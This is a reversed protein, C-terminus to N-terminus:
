LSLPPKSAPGIAMYVGDREDILGDRLLRQLAPNFIAGVVNMSRQIVRKACPQKRALLRLIAAEVRDSRSPQDPPRVIGENMKAVFDGSLLENGWPSFENLYIGMERYHQARRLAEKRTHGSAAIFKGITKSSRWLGIFAEADIM